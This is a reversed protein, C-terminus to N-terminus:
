KSKELPAHGATRGPATPKESRLSRGHTRMWAAISELSGLLQRAVPTAEYEVRPPMEPYATRHVLGRTELLRLQKTLEKQTIPRAARQLERFRVPGGSIILRYLLPIAWKGSVLTVFEVLPCPEPLSTTETVPAKRELTNM